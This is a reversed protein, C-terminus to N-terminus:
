LGFLEKSLVRQRQADVDAIEEPSESRGMPGLSHAALHLMDASREHHRATKESSRHLIYHSRITVQIYYLIIIM